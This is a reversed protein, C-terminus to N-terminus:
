WAYMCSLFSKIELNDGVYGSNHYYRSLREVSNIKRATLLTWIRGCEKSFLILAIKTEFFLFVPLGM